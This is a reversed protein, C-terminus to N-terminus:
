KIKFTIQKLLYKFQPGNTNGSVPKHDTQQTECTIKVGRKIKETSQSSTCSNDALLSGLAMNKSDKDYFKKLGNKKCQLRNELQLHVCFNLGRKNGDM